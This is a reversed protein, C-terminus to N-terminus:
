FNISFSIVDGNKMIVNILKKSKTCYEVEKVQSVEMMYCRMEDELLISNKDKEVQMVVMYICDDYGELNFFASVMYGNSIFQKLTAYLERM